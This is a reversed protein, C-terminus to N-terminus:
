GSFIFDVQIECIHIVIERDSFKFERRLPFEKKWKYFVTDLKSFTHSSINYLLLIPGECADMLFLLNLNELVKWKVHIDVETYSNYYM